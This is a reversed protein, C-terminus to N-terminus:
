TSYKVIIIEIALRDDMQGTKIAEEAEVCDVLATKLDEEKFHTSQQMYKDAIFPQLKLKQAIGAKNNGKRRLEKTQLMLNFQRSLLALIKLPPEKKALLDYYLHLARNQQKLGIAAIMDFIHDSVRTTVIQDVDNEHIDTSEYTYCILKELETDINRMDNGTRALFLDMAAGTIRKNEASLKRLIWNKLKEETQLPFEVARGNDKILKYLRGRKDVEKEVFIFRTTECPEKFYDCILDNANKFFGSEEVLITRYDSFFPMSEAMEIFQKEDIAKGEFKTYNMSNELSDPHMSKLLLDRYQSILYAEEGYLLYANKLNGSKIDNQITIM